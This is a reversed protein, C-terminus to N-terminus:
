EQSKAYELVFPNNPSYKKLENYTKRAGNVDGGLSQASLLYGKVELNYPYMDLVQKYLTACSSYNKLRYYAYATKTLATFYTAYKALIKNGTEVVTEWQGLATACTLIGEASELTSNLAYAKQYYNLAKAYQAACYYLWGLRLKYFPEQDDMQELAKMPEIASTYNGVAEFNYSSQLKIGATQAFLGFAICLVFISLLLHKM